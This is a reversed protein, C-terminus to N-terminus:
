LAAKRHAALRNNYASIIDRRSLLGLLKTGNTADLVPLEDLNRETIRRLATNLDDNPSVSPFDVRMVDSAIALQWIDDKYLYERVDDSTFVGKVNGDSDVVPFFHQRNGPLRHVIEDLTESEHIQLQGETSHFVDLV